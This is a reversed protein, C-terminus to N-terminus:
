FLLLFFMLLIGELCSVICCQANKKLDSMESGPYENLYRYKHSMGTFHSHNQISAIVM